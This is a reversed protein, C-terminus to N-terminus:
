GQHSILTGNAKVEQLVLDALHQTPPNTSSIFARINPTGALLANDDGVLQNVTEIVAEIMEPNAEVELEALQRSLYRSASIHAPVAVPAIDIVKRQRAMAPTTADGQLARIHARIADPWDKQRAATTKCADGDLAAGGDPSQFNRAGPAFFVDDKSVQATSCVGDADPNIMVYYYMVKGSKKLNVVVRLATDLSVVDPNQQYQALTKISRGYQSTERAPVKLDAPPNKLADKARLYPSVPLWVGVWLAEHERDSPAQLESATPELSPPTYKGELSLLQQSEFSRVRLTQLTTPMIKEDVACAWL